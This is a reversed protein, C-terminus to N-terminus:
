KIIHFIPSEGAIVAGTFKTLEKTDMNSIVVPILTSKAKSELLTLDFEIIVDGVEVTQGEQAIRRFGNGQLEVTDIEFYVVIEVGSDSQISFAHNTEFIKQIVGNVPAVIKNGTPKIAIGDGVVKEAFVADPVDEINVIEGSLPAVIVIVGNSLTDDSVLNKLKNFLSM